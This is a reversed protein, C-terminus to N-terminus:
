KGGDGGAPDAKEDKASGDGTSQGGSTGAAGSKSGSKVAPPVNPGVNEPASLWGTYKMLWGRLGAKFKDVVNLLTVGAGSPAKGKGVGAASPSDSGSDGANSPDIGAAGLLAWVFHMCNSKILDYRNNAIWWVRAEEIRMFQERTITWDRAYDFPHRHFSPHKGDTYDGHNFFSGWGTPDSSNGAWGYTRTWILNETKADQVDVRIMMHVGGFTKAYVTVWYVYDKTKDGPPKAKKRGLSELGM